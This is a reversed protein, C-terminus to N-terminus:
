FNRLLNASRFTCTMKLIILMGPSTVKTNIISSLHFEAGKFVSFIAFDIASSQLPIGIYKQRLAINARVCFCKVCKLETHM